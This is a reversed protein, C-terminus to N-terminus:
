SFNSFKRDYQGDLEGAELSAMVLNMKSKAMRVGISNPYNRLTAAVSKGWLEYEDDQKNALNVSCNCKTPALKPRKIMPKVSPPPSSMPSDSVLPDSDDDHREDIDVDQSTTAFSSMSAESEKSIINNSTRSGWDMNIIPELFLLSNYFPNPPKQVDASEEIRPEKVKNYANRFQQRLLNWKNSVEHKPLVMIESIEGWACERIGRNKYENNTVDWLSPKSEILEILKQCRDASWKTSVKRPRRIKKQGNM